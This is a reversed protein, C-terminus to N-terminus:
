DPGTELQSARVLLATSTSAVSMCPRRWSQTTSDAKKAPPPAARSLESNGFILPVAARSIKRVSPASWAGYGKRLFPFNGSACSRTLTRAPGCRYARAVSKTATRSLQGAVQRLRHTTRLHSRGISRRLGLKHRRMPARKGSITSAIAITATMAVATHTAHSKRHSQHHGTGIPNAPIDSVQLSSLSACGICTATSVSV